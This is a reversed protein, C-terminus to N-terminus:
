EVPQKKFYYKNVTASTQAWKMIGDFRHLPANNSDILELLKM